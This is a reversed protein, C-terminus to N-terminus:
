AFPNPPIPTSVVQAATAVNVPVASPTSSDGNSSGDSSGAAANSASSGDSDSSVAGTSVSTSGSNSAADSAAGTPVNSFASGAGSAANTGSDSNSNAAGAASASDGGEGARVDITPAIGLDLEVTTLSIGLSQAIQQPAEGQKDLKQVKITSSLTIVDDDVSDVAQATTTGTATPTQIQGPVVTSSDLYVGSISIFMEPRGELVQLDM